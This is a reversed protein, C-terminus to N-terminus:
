SRAEAVVGPSRAGQCRNRRPSPLIEHHFLEFLVLHLFLEQSVGPYLPAVARVGRAYNLLRDVFHLYGLPGRTRPPFPSLFRYRESTAASFDLLAKRQKRDLLSDLQQEKDSGLVPKARSGRAERWRQTLDDLETKKWKRARDMSLGLVLYAPDFMSGDNQTDLLDIPLTEAARGTSHLWNRTEALTKKPV